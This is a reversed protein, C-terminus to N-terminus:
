GNLVTWGKTILNEIAADDTIRAGTYQWRVDLTGDTQGATDLAQALENLSVENLNNRFLQLYKVGAPLEPISALKVGANFTQLDIPLVGSIASVSVYNSSFALTTPANHHYVKLVREGSGYYHEAGGTFSVISSGDGWDVTVTDNAYFQLNGGGIVTAEFVPGTPTSTGPGASDSGSITGETVRTPKVPLGDAKTSAVIRIWKESEDVLNLEEIIYQQDKYVLLWDKTINTRGASYRIEFEKSYRISTTNAENVRKESTKAVKAFTEINPFPYTIEIGGEENKSTQPAKLIIKHRLDGSIAM